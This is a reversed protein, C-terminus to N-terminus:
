NRKRWVLLGALGLALGAAAVSMEPVLAQGTERTITAGGSSGSVTYYFNGSAGTTTLQLDGCGDAGTVADLAAVALEGTPNEDPPTQCGVIGNHDKCVEDIAIAIGALPAGNHSVCYEVIEVDNPEITMVEPILVSNVALAPAASLLLLALTLLSAKTTKM